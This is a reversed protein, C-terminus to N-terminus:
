ADGAEPQAIPLEKRRAHYTQYRDICFQGDHNGLTYVTVEPNALPEMRIGPEATIPVMGKSVAMATTAKLNDDDLQGTEDLYFHLSYDKKGLIARVLQVFIMAKATMGTGTSGINDLSRAENVTGDNERVRIRIEFLELLEIIQETEIMTQLRNKSIEIGERDQFLTEEQTLNCIDQYSTNHQVDLEVGHLNSVRYSLLEKNLRQVAMRVNHMGTLMHKLNARLHTLLDDWEKGMVKERDSLADYKQILDDWTSDEDAFYVRQTRTAASATEIEKELGHIDSRKQGLSRVRHLFQNIATLLQRVSKVIDATGAKHSDAAETDVAPAPPDIHLAQLEHQLEGRKSALDKSADRLASEESSMQSDCGQAEEIAKDIMAIKEGTDQIAKRLQSVADETPGREAWDKCYQEYRELSDHFENHKQQMAALTQRARAVHEATELREVATKLELESLVLSKRLQDRNLITELDPGEVGDLRVRVADDQYSGEKVRSALGRLEALLVEEDRIEVAEGVIQRALSPNLVRFISDLEAKSLGRNLLVTAGAHEIQELLTRHSAISRRLDEVKRRMVGLDLSQTQKLNERLRSIEDQLSVANQRLENIMEPSYASWEKHASCLKELRAAAQKLDNQLSGRQQYLENRNSEKEAIENKLETRQEGLINAQRAADRGLVGAQTLLLPVHERLMQQIAVIEQRLERGRGIHASVDRIFGYEEESRVAREFMDKYTAAVDIRTEGVEHAHCAIILRKLDRATADTLALLKVFVERFANYEQQSRLPLIGLSPLNKAKAPVQGTLVEWLHVRPVELLNRDALLRKISDFERITRDEEEYDERRFPGSYVYREFGGARLNGLGRVLLTQIGSPTSCEYILYSRSEGFYHERTEEVNKPFAMRHIDDVYLYQLANVLTSKGANNRAVLHVPGALDLEAYIFRGSNIAVLRRVGHRM